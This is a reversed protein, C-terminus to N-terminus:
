EHKFVAKIGKKADAFISSGVLLYMAPLYIAGGLLVLLGISILSVPLFRRVFFLVIGMGISAIAPTIFSKYLSFKLLKHVVYIAVVSSTGVLAYGMAAGSVGYKISFYPLFLWTLTTWMIMLKFTTKIKGIANLTNTLQTTAAAFFTNISILFLPILAPEWKEYRPIIKVLFPAVIVLGVITPFVLFCVFFISRSLVQALQKKDDQMRSFAPFTVKLVHDMFLRLPYQAWKQAWGLLGIGVPGLIGGLFVTMGDDKIVALFTNAQYPVGFTLLKKLAKKSFSFGPFWPKIFYIVVLGTIGRAIVAYAFSVVGFGRWAFYVAVLNYVINEVVQPIAWKGFELERELLISPITKLSSLFLSFGLAFLLFKGSQSFGYYSQLFPSVVFLILLLSLVLIQQVLFTTNLDAKSIKGKKQILAAALGVDSFYALFNVIASIIWFIGFESPDLFVTLFGIAVLSILSLLFTRGTLVAVGKVARSKVAELTIETTPDLHGEAVEINGM